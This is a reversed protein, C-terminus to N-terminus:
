RARKSLPFVVLNRFLGGAAVVIMFVAGAAMLALYAALTREDPRTALADAHLPISVTAAAVVALALIAANCALLRGGPVGHPNAHFFGWVVAVLMFILILVMFHM